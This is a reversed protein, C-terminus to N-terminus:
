KVKEEGKEDKQSANGKRTQHLDLLFGIFVLSDV